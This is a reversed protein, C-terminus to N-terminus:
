CLPKQKVIVGMGMYGWKGWIRMGGNCGYGWVGNGWVGMGWVGVGGYGWVGYGWVGMVGMGWVGGSIDICRLASSHFSSLVFSASSNHEVLWRSRFMIVPPLNTHRGVARSDCVEYRVGYGVGCKM